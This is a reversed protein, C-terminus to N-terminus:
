IYFTEEWVAQPKVMMLAAGCDNEALTAWIFTARFAACVATKLTKARSDPRQRHGCM